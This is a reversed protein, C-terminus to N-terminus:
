DQRSKNIIDLLQASNNMLTETACSVQEASAANNQTLETIVDFSKSLEITTFSQEKMGDSISLSLQKVDHMADKVSNSLKRQNGTVGDMEASLKTSFELTVNMNKLHSYLTNFLGYGSNINATTENILQSIQKASVTSNDALKSIEQAVVAFGKGAEGARASEISANLSLLNTRDAIESILNVIDKIKEASLNIQQIGEQVRGFVAVAEKGQGIAKESENKIKGARDAVDNIFTDLEIISNEIREVSGSQVAADSSVKEMAAAIEEMSASSEELRAAQNQASDNLGAATSKFAVASDQLNSAVDKISAFIDAILYYQKSNSEAEQKHKSNSLGTLTINIYSVVGTILLAATSNAVGAKAISLSVPDLRDKALVFYAINSFIFIIVTIPVLKKKGFVATFVIVFFNYFLYSSFGLHPTGALKAFRAAIIIIITPVLFVMVSVDYKGTSLFFMDLLVVLMISSAGVLVSLIAEPNILAYLVVLVVLLFIMLFDFYLLAMAKYRLTFNESNYKSLFLKNFTNM